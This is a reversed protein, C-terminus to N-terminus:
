TMHRSCAISRPKRCLIAKRTPSADGTGTSLEPVDLALDIIRARVEDPIRNWVQRPSSPRDEMSGAQEGPLPRVLPLLDLTSHGADAADARRCILDSVLRIIELKESAPYRM